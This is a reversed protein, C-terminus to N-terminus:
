HFNGTKEVLKFGIKKKINTRNKTSWEGPLGNKWNQNRFIFCERICLFGTLNYWRILYM